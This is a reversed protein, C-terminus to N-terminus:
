KVVVPLYVEAGPLVVLAGAINNDEDGEVMRGNGPSGCNYISFAGTCVGPWEIDAQTYLRYIKKETFQVTFMTSLSEGPALVPGPAPQGYLFLPNAWFGDQETCPLNYADVCRSGWRDHPGTPRGAPIFGDPKIYLDIWFWGYGDSSLAPDLGQNTVTVVVTTPTNIAPRQPQISIGTIALDPGNVIDTDSAVQNSPDLEVGSQGNDLVEASNRIALVGTPLTDTVRLVMTIIRTQGATLAGIAYRYIINKDPDTEVYSWGPTGGAFSLVPQSLDPLGPEIYDTIIVGTATVPYQATNTLRLTYTLYEGAGATTKGDSKSLTLDFRYAVPTTVENSVTSLVEASAIYARNNLQSGTLASTSVRAVFGVAGGSLPLITGIDWRLLRQSALQSTDPQVGGFAGVYELNLPFIDTIVVSTLTRATSPNSYTITYTILDAPQVM